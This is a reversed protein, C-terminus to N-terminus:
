IMLIPTPLTIILYLMTPHQKKPTKM